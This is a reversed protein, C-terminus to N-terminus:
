EIEEGSNWKIEAEQLLTAAIKAWVARNHQDGKEEEQISLDCSAFGAFHTGAIKLSVDFLPSGSSGCRTDCSHGYELELLRSVKCDDFVFMKERRHGDPFQISLLQDNLQVPTDSIQARAWRSSVERDTRIMAIDPAISVSDINSVTDLTAFLWDVCRYPASRKVRFFKSTKEGGFRITMSQCAQLSPVCHRNTIIINDKLLAGTCHVNKGLDIFQLHAVASRADSFKELDWDGKLFERDYGDSAIFEYYRQTNNPEIISDLGAFGGIDYTLASIIVQDESLKAESLVAISIKGREASPTYVGGSHGNLPIAGGSAICAEVAGQLSEDLCNPLGAGEYFVFINKDGTMPAIRLSARIHSVGRRKFPPPKYLHRGSVEGVYYEVMDIDLTEFTGSNEQSQACPTIAIILAVVIVKGWWM